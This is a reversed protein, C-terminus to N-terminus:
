VNTPLKAYVLFPESGSLTFHEQWLGSTLLDALDYFGGGLMVRLRRRLEKRGQKLFHAIRFDNEHVFDELPM